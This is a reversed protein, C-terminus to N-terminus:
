EEDEAAVAEIGLAGLVHHTFVGYVLSVLLAVAVPLAAHWGGRTTLDVVVQQNGFVLAYIAASLLGWVVLTGWTSRKANGARKLRDRRSPARTHM